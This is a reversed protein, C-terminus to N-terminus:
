LYFNQWNLWKEFILPSRKHFPTYFFLVNIKWSRRWDRKRQNCQKCCVRCPSLEFSPSTQACSAKGRNEWRHGLAAEAAGFCFGCVGLFWHSLDFVETPLPGASVWGAVWVTLAPGSFAPWTSSSSPRWIQFFNREAWLQFTKAQVYTHDMKLSQPHGWYDEQVCLSIQVIWLCSPVPHFWLGQCRVPGPLLVGM